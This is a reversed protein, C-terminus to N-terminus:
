QKFQQLDFRLVEMGNKGASFRQKECEQARARYELNIQMKYQFGRWDGYERSWFKTFCEEGCVYITKGDVEFTREAQSTCPHVDCVVRTVKGM